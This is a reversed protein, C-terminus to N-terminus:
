SVGGGGSLAALPVEITGAPLRTDSYVVISMASPDLRVVTPRALLHERVWALFERAREDELPM